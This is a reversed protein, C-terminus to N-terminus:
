KAKLEKKALSKAENLPLLSGITRGNKDVRYRPKRKGYPNYEHIKEIYITEFSKNDYVAYSGEGMKEVKIAM